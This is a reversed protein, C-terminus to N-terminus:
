DDALFRLTSNHVLGVCVGSDIGDYNDFLYHIGGYLRSVAAESAAQVFNTYARDAPLGATPNLRSHCTDTFAYNGFVETLVIAAAGSQTSHGSTYTPFNPTGIVPDWGGDINDRIYTAPRQLYSTYKAEWCTIFADAVALGVRAFAEASVDLSLAEDASIQCAIAIWHGPPTGTGGANDAWYLAIDRQDQTLNAGADGTTNYVLLSQAHWASGISNSYAPPGIPECELGDAVVFTRMDGWCPLLPQASGSVPTWGGSNPPIPAVWNTQCDAQLATGDTAAWVLIANGLADGYDVSRDVVAADVGASLTALLSAEQADFETTAGAVLATSVVNLARNAAIAWDHVQGTPPVPLTNAPLGGLQGQLSQHEPMGHVVAEYLAVGTYAFARAARPPNTSTQRIQTYLTENWQVAVDSGFSATLASTPAPTAPSDSGGNSCAAGVFVLAAVCATRPASLFTRPPM